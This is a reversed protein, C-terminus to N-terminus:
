YQYHFPDHPDTWRGGWTHGMSEWIEGLKKYHPSLWKLTDIDGIIDVIVIDVALWLQHMSLNGYSGSKNTVIGEGPIGRRGKQYLRNQEYATRHYSTILVNINLDRALILMMSLDRSFRMRKQTRTM